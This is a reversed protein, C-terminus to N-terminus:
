NIKLQERVEYWRLVQITPLYVDSMIGADWCDLCKTYGLAKATEINYIYFSRNKIHYCDYHHYRSGSTTVVCAHQSYWSARRFFSVADRILADVASEAIKLNEIATKEYASYGEDYGNHRGVVVGDDYGNDYGKDYGKDYGTNRGVAVGWDYADDYGNNYGKDRGVFFFILAVSILLVIGIANRVFPKTWFSPEEDWEGASMMDMTRQMIEDTPLQKGGLEEMQRMVDLVGNFEEETIYGAAYAERFKQLKAEKDTATTKQAPQTSAHIHEKM